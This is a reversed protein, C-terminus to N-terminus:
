KLAALVQDLNTARVYTFGRAEVKDKFLAQAELQEKNTRGDETKTEIFIARGQPVLVMLDATGAPCLRIRRSGMKVTGSNLRLVMYGAKTLADAIPRTVSSTEAM